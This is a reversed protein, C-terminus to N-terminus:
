CAACTRSPSPPESRERPPASSRRRNVRSPTREGHDAPGTSANKLGGPISRNYEPTVFLVADVSAIAEKLARGEAPYDADYDYSYLPLDTTPIETVQLGSPV